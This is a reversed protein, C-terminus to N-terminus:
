RKSEYEAEVSNMCESSGKITLVTFNRTEEISGVVWSIFKKGEKIKKELNHKTISQPQADMKMVAFGHVNTKKRSEIFSAVITIMINQSSKVIMNTTTIM